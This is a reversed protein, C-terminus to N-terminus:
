LKVLEYSADFGLEQAYRIQKSPDIRNVEEFVKPKVENILELSANDIAALGDSALYGIDPCIISGPHPDCDCNQAINVLASVYLVRKGSVCARAAMALGKQLDMIEYSLAESPCASVCKGCGACAVSDYIWDSDVTIAGSPCIEACAGCLDCKEETYVPISMHHLKRKTEKTMGGMGLNKIAGGFGAQMHGKVHSVVVLHTSDFIEKAVELTHGSEVVKVGDEGIFVDCGMDDKGFGHRYATKRYGDKNSRPGPYAVVTDFLFPEANIGKLKDVIRKVFTPSIHYKNGPEGMHLKILVKARRFDEIGLLDLANPIQGTVTSFYVKAM